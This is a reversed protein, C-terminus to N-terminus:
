RQLLELEPHPTHALLLPPEPEDDDEDEEVGAGDGYLVVVLWEPEGLEETLIEPTHTVNAKQLVTVPGKYIRWKSGQLM